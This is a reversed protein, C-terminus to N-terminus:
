GPKRHLCHYAVYSELIFQIEKLGNNMRTCISSFYGFGVTVSIRGMTSLREWHPSNCQLKCLDNWGKLGGALLMNSGRPFSRFAVPIVAGVSLRSVLGCYEVDLKWKIISFHEHYIKTQHIGRWGEETDNWSNNTAYLAPHPRTNRRVATDNAVAAKIIYSFHQLFPPMLPRPPAPNCQKLYDWPKAAYAHIQIRILVKWKM